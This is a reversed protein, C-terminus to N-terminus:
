DLYIWDRFLLVANVVCRKLIGKLGILQQGKKKHIQVPTCIRWYITNIYLMHM